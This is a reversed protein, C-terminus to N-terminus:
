VESLTEKMSLVELTMDHVLVQFLFFFTFIGQFCVLLCLIDLVGSFSGQAAIRSCTSGPDGERSDTERERGGHREAFERERERERQCASGSECCIANLVTVLAIEQFSFYCDVLILYAVVLGGFNIIKRSNAFIPANILQHHM